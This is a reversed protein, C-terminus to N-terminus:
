LQHRFIFIIIRIEKGASLSRDPSSHVKAVGSDSFGGNAKCSDLFSKEQEKKKALKRDQRRALEERHTSVMTVM